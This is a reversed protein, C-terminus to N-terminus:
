EETTPTPTPTTAARGRPPAPPPPPLIAVAGQAILIAATAEDLEVLEGPEAYANGPLALRQIAEYQPM